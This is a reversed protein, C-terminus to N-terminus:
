QQRKDTMRVESGGRQNAWASRVPAARDHFHM